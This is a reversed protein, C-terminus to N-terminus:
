LCGLERLGRECQAASEFHITHLGLGAAAGVNVAMDDIFVTREPVLGYRDLVHRFIEPEPKCLGVRCSFVIGEFADWFTQTAELYKTSADGMNSLCFLRRGKDRLRHLLAITEPKGVWQLSMGRLFRAVDAYPLGTREASHRIADELGLVGRDMDVWHPHDVIEARVLAHTAPDAFVDEILAAQDYEVLVGALDFIVATVSV